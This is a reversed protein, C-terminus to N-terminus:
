SGERSLVIKKRRYLMKHQIVVQETPMQDRSYSESVLLVIIVGCANFKNRIFSM